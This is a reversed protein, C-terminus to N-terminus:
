NDEPEPPEKGFKARYVAAFKEKLKPDCKFCQEKAVNHKDCWGGNAKCAAKLDKNCMICEAEPIGHEDCWWGDHKADGSKAPTQGNAAGKDEKTCGIAFMSLVFC